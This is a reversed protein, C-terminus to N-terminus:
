TTILLWFLRLSGALLLVGLLGVFALRLLPTPKARRKRKRFESYGVQLAMVGFFAIGLDVYGVLIHGFVRDLGLNEHRFFGTAFLIFLTICLALVVWFGNKLVLAAVREGRLLTKYLSVGIRSHQEM